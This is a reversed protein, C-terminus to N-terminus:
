AKPKQEAAAAKPEAAAKAKAKPAPEAPKAETVHAAVAPAEHLYRCQSGHLCGKTSNYFPCVKGKGPRLWGGMMKQCIAMGFLSTVVEM